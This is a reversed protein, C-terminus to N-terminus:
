KPLNGGEHVTQTQRVILDHSHYGVPVKEQHRLVLLPNGISLNVMLDGLFLHSQM